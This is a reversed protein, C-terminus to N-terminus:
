EPYGTIKRIKKYFPKLKKYMKKYVKKYLQHYIEVNKKNPYFETKYQVMKSITEEISGFNGTGLATIMAAGLGSTETTTGRVLPLNFIDAAIQCIEDSKSAGGSVTLKKIKTKTVKEIKEKGELLAFVLGEIIARYVHEKKHVDGFGIIAGKAVPDSLGPSWYPQMILGMSGPPSQNLLENLVEEVPIKKKAAEQEEEHAFQNKFWTIMWFGRFVEVEPNFLGSIVSPYAPMYKIAELYKKSTTQITATTGFSLSAMDKSLVGMGLTDCGKDSGCAVVPLGVPLGTEKNAKETIKGIIEGPRILEPLKDKEVPFIKASFVLLKKPNGWKQKKYNFPIHGIQSAISDKFEGTLRYNLFGSVQLYKHTRNWLEPQNQKIWNCKGELQAKNISDRMGIFRILLKMVLGPKYVPEAKRQDLWVMLPRLPNGNKDLNVMSNRITTIGVGIIKDFYLPHLQKLKLCATKLSEWYIEPDQEAWGPYRSVYPEFAIKEIALIEGTLSFLIARLSQTGCDISLITKQM